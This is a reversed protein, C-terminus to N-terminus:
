CPAPTEDPVRIRRQRFHFVAVHVDDRFAAHIRHLFLVRQSEILNPSGTQPLNESSRFELMWKEVSDLRSHKRFVDRQLLPRSDHVRSRSVARLIKVGSLFVAYLRVRREVVFPSERLSQRFVLALRHEFRIRNM